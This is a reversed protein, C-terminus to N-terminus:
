QRVQSFREARAEVKETRWRHIHTEDISFLAEPRICLLRDYETPDAEDYIPNVQFIKETVVVDRFNKFWRSFNVPRCWAARASDLKQAAGTELGVRKALAPWFGKTIGHEGLQDRRSDDEAVLSDAYAM